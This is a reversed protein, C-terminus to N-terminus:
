YSLSQDFDTYSKNASNFRFRVQATLSDSQKPGAELPVLYDANFSRALCLMSVYGVAYTISDKKFSNEGVKQADRLKQLVARDKRETLNCNQLLQCNIQKRQKKNISKIACPASQSKICRWVSSALIKTISAWSMRKKPLSNMRLMPLEILEKTEQAIVSPSTFSQGIVLNRLAFRTGLM